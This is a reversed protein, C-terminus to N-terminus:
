AKNKVSAQRNRKPSTSRAPPSVNGDSPVDDVLLSLLAGLSQHSELPHRLPRRPIVQYRNRRGSRSRSLCGSAVLDSVIRQAARETIGVQVAVDRLRQEPDRAICVLVHAHNSLFTWSNTGRGGAERKEDKTSM